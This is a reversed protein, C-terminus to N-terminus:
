IGRNPPPQYHEVAWQRLRSCRYSLQRKFIFFPTARKAVGEM